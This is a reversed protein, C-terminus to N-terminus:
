PSAPPGLTNDAVTVGSCATLRLAQDALHAGDWGPGVFTNGTFALGATSKASLAVGPPMQFINQELRINRHVPNAATVESNEPQVNVVPTGCEVFTNHRILVDRVMGSEFWSRADDSILIASMPTRYFVNDEIVVKRRTTVLIGRTPLRAIHCHRIEVEPTWTTDEICDAGLVIGAPAPADLTLRYDTPSQREIATIRGSGFATLSRPRIFDIEDGVLGPAFGWTERHSFRVLIQNPAPQAMVRLHIGHVNIADDQAGSFRCGDITIKGRCDAFHMFDAFSACTRGSGPRPMLALDRFTLDESFQSILGLGPLSCLQLRQLTVNRSGLLFLGVQDRIGDRFQFYHGIRTNPRHDYTFKLLGPKLEEIHTATRVPDWSRWTVDRGPDYEQSLGGPSEWGEGLWTLKGDQLKYKSDPHVEAELSQDSVATVHMESVAPRAFDVALDTLTVDECGDLIIPTMKGHFMLTAGHGDITLRRAHRLLLGIVKTQDNGQTLTNSVHYEVHAAHDPYLDYRGAALQLTAGGPVAEAAALAKGFAPTADQGTDPLAGFEAVAIVKPAAMTATSLVGGAVTVLLALLFANM